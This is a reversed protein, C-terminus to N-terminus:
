NSHLAGQGNHADEVAHVVDSHWFVPKGKALIPDNWNVQGSEGDPLLTLRNSKSSGSLHEFGEIHMFAAFLIPSQNGRELADESGVIKIQFPRIGRVRLLPEASM